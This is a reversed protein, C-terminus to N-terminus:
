QAEILSSRKYKKEVNRNNDLMNLYLPLRVAKFCRQLLQKVNIKLTKPRIEFFSTHLLILNRM